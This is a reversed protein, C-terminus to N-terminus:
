CTLGDGAPVDLLDTIHRYAAVRSNMEEPGHGNCEQAGNIAQITMGFNGRPVHANWFWMTTKWAVAEDRAVLGPDHLLDLGLMLGADHYNYNWSLHLPGRGFYANVGAPCGYARDADCYVGRHGPREEIFTLGVTEHTVNALFAAADRRSDFHTNAIFGDYSYFPSHHPFIAEFEERSVMPQEPQALSSVCGTLAVALATVAAALRLM